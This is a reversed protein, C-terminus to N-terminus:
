KYLNPLRENHLKRWGGIVEDRKLQTVSLATLIIWLLCYTTTRINNEMFPNSLYYVKYRVSRCCSSLSLSISHRAPAYIPIDLCPTLEIESQRIWSNATFWPSLNVSVTNM